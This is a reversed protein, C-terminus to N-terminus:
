NSNLAAEKLLEMIKDPLDIPVNFFPHLLFHSAVQAHVEMSGVVVRPNPKVTTRGQSLFASFTGALRERQERGEAITKRRLVM